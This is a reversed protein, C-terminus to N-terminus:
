APSEPKVTIRTMKNKDRLVTFTLEGRGELKKYVDRSGHVPHDNIHTVIDGPRLGALDAPSGVVVRYIVIGHMVNSPIQMRTRLEEIVQPNLTLMTIGIYRRRGINVGGSKGAAASKELFETAYDIPIAFSIGPTVKMSNIGIAEGDLNILPGGSNGFTIAADTQIYEPVDRGQIGLEDPPRAVNSVIGTTITNSLSLPSGMAVVWEGPRLKSSTGLKQVPLSSCPIRITALDSRVDVDEVTGAFIRGDQLRVQISARPKNIVVHANTLILGDEKVIFGSGNSSTVPQGTFFDRVGTDKIEIYVLSPATEAVVDAIFNFRERRPKGSGDDHSNDDFKEAANVTFFKFHPFTRSSIGQNQRRNNVLFASALGFLSAAFITNSQDNSKQKQDNKEHQDAASQVISTTHSNFFSSGNQFSCKLFPSNRSRFILSRLSM